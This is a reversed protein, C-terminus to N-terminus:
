LRFEEMEPRLEGDRAQIRSCRHGSNGIKMELQFKEMEVLMFKGDGDRAQIGGDKAQTRAQEQCCSIKAELFLTHIRKVGFLLTKKCLNKNKFGYLFQILFM